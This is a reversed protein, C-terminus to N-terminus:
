AIWFVAKLSFQFSRDHANISRNWSWESCVRSWAKRKKDEDSLFHSIGKSQGTLKTSHIHQSGVCSSGMMNGFISTLSLFIRGEERPCPTLAFSRQLQNWWETMPTQTSKILLEIGTYNISNNHASIKNRIFWSPMIQGKWHKWFYVFFYM